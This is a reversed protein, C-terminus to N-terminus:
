EFLVSIPIDLTRLMRRCTCSVKILKALLPEGVGLVGGIWPKDPLIMIRMIIKSLAWSKPCVLVAKSHRWCGPVEDALYKLIALKFEEIWHSNAQVPRDPVANRYTTEAEFHIAQRCLRELVYHPLNGDRTGRRQLRRPSIWFFSILEDKPSDFRLDAITLSHNWLNPSLDASGHHQM